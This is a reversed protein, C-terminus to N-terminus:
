LPNLRVWLGNKPHVTNGTEEVPSTWAAQVEYRQLLRILAVKLITTALSAGICYRSGGGFPLYAFPPPKDAEGSEANWREPNFTLPDRYPALRHTLHSSFAVLSGKRLTYSAYELDRDAQRLGAPAPPYLRLTEKVVRELYPSSLSTLTLDRMDDGLGSVEERLRVLADPHALLAYVAWSLAASTTDFGASVLSVAQDRVERDSLGEGAEDKAELLMGIVDDTPEGGRRRAIEAFLLKDASRRSRVFRQWPTGPLPVRLQQALLPRNAFAMMAGVHTVLEPTRRLTERGLLTECIIRLISPRVASYLDFPQASPLSAFLDGFRRDILGIVSTLRKHHFAPQVLRRRRLHAPEDSTILAYDGTIPQLFHYARRLTFHAAADQLVFRNADAGILWTFRLPGFGFAFVPGYRAYLTTVAANPYAAAREM